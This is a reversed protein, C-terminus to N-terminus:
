DSLFVKYNNFSWSIQQIMIKISTAIPIALLMGLLGATEAGIL